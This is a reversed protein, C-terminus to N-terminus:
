KLYKYEIILKVVIFYPLGKESFPGHKESEASFAWDELGEQVTLVENRGLCTSKESIVTFLRVCRYTVSQAFSWGTQHSLDM